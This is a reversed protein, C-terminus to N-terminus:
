PIILFHLTFSHVDFLIYFCVVSFIGLIIMIWGGKIAMDLMNMEAPAAVPTLVPNSTALSDTLNTAAQALLNMTDM